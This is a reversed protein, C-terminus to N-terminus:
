LKKESLDAAPVYERVLEGLEWTRHVDALNHQCVARLEGRAYSVPAEASDEFPDYRRDAYWPHEEPVEPVDAVLVAHAGALTNADEATDLRTDTTNLRKSVPDWLDAFTLGGFPWAVGQRAYRTRLFPLDFGGQWSDANFAVLRDRSREVYEFLVQGVAELAGQEDPTVRVAVPVGSVAALHDELATRDADADGAVLVLKARGDPLWFGAVTLRDDWAFGTTEVDWAVHRRDRDRHRM